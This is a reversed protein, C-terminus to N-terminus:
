LAKEGLRHRARFESPPVGHMRKFAASFHYVSSFGAAAAVEIVPQETALLLSRAVEMRANLLCQYLSQGTAARFRRNLYAPSYSVHRSIDAVRLQPDSLREQIFATVRRVLEREEDEAPRPSGGAALEIQRCLHGILALLCGRAIWPQFRGGALWAEAWADLIARPTGGTAMELKPDPGGGYTMPFIAVADSFVQLWITRYTRGAAAPTEYHLAGPPVLCLDGSRMKYARGEFVLVCDGMEVYALEYFSHREEKCILPPPASDTRWPWDAGETLLFPHPKTEISRLMREVWPLLARSPM